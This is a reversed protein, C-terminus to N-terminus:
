EDIKEKIYKHIIKKLVYKESHKIAGRKTLTKRKEVFTIREEGVQWKEVVYLFGPKTIKVWFDENM